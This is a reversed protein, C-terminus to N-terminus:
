NPKTVILADQRASDYHVRYHKKVVYLSLINAVGKPNYWV